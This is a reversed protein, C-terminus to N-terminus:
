YSLLGNILANFTTASAIPQWTREQICAVCTCCGFVADAVSVTYIYYRREMEM